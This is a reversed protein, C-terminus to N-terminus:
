RFNRESYAKEVLTMQRTMETMHETSSRSLKPPRLALFLPRKPNVFEFPASARSERASREGSIKTSAPEQPSRALSEASAGGTPPVKVLPRDSCGAYIHKIRFALHCARELRRKV